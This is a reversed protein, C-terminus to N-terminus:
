PRGKVACFRLSVTWWPNSSDIVNSEQKM